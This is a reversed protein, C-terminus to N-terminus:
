ESRVSESVLTNSPSVTSTLALTVLVASEALSYVASNFCFPVTM